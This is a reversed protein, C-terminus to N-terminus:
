PYKYVALKRSGTDNAQDMATIVGRPEDKKTEYFLVIGDPRKKNVYVARNLNWEGVSPTGYPNKLAGAIENIAEIAM